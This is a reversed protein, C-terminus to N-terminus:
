DNTIEISRIRVKMDGDMCELLDKELELIENLDYNAQVVNLASNMAGTAGLSAGDLALMGVDEVADIVQWTVEIGMNKAFDTLKYAFDTSFSELLSRDSLIIKYMGVDDVNKAWKKAGEKVLNTAIEVMNGKGVAKILKSADAMDVPKLTDSSSDILDWTRIFTEVINLALLDEDENPQLVRIYGGERVTLEVNTQKTMQDNQYKTDFIRGTAWFTQAGGKIISTVADYGEIYTRGIENGYKDYSVVAYVMTGANYAEFSVKNASRDYEYDNIAVDETIMVSDYDWEVSEMDKMQVIDTCQDEYSLMSDKVSLTTVFVELTDLVLRDSGRVLSLTVFGANYFTCLLGQVTCGNDATIYLDTENVSVPENHTVDYVEAIAYESKTVLVYSKNLSRSVHADQLRLEYVTENAEIHEDEPETTTENYSKDGNYGCLSCRGNKVSHEETSSEMESRYVQGCTCSYIVEVSKIHHNENFQSYTPPKANRNETHDCNDKEAGPADITRYQGCNRCYERWEGNVEKPEDTQWAHGHCICCKDAPQPNNSGDLTYYQGEILPHASCDRCVNFRQHPHDSEYSTRAIVHEVSQTTVVPETKEGCITCVEYTTTVIDHIEVSQNVIETSTVTEWNHVVKPYCKECGDLKDYEGTYRTAGCDCQEYRRHNQGDIHEKEPLNVLEFTHEHQPEETSVPKPYCKECGELKVYEGDFRIEGCSCQQYYMHGQVEDHEEGIYQEFKHHHKPEETPAPTPYCKECGDLKGCEGTYRTEGCACQEYYRHGQGDVHEKEIGQVFEHQHPEETPVPNSTPQPIATLEPLESISPTPGTVPESTPVDTPVPNSTPQPNATLQPLEPISPTPDTAPIATPAATPVPNSTPQPAATLEPLESVSPTPDTAPIATPATTPVPNSTPQPAATLEPLEPLTPGTFPESTPQAEVHGCVCKGNVYVHAEEYAEDNLVNQTGCACIYRMHYIALHKTNDIQSYTPTGEMVGKEPLTHDCKVHGCVCSIGNEYVHKETYPEDRLESKEGCSCTYRMHYVANHTNDDLPTYTPIGETVGTSTLTHDCAPPTVNISGSSSTAQNGDSDTVTATFQYTGPKDTTINYSSGYSSDTSAVTGGNCTVRWSFSYTGTGGAATASASISSGVEVQSQNAGVSVSLPEQKEPKVFDCQKCVGKSNFNHAEHYYERADDAPKRLVEDCDSCVEKYQLDVTHEDESYENYAPYGSLLVYETHKHPCVYTYDCIRCDGNSKFDHPEVETVKFSDGIHEFCETCYEYQYGIVEHESDSISLYKIRHDTDWGIETHKHTCGEVTFSTMGTYSWTSTNNPDNGECCAGAWVRYEHGAVWTGSVRASTKSTTENSAFAEGTTVDRVSYAYYQAGPVSNWSLRIKGSGPSPISVDLGISETAFASLPALCLLAALVLVFCVSFYKKM